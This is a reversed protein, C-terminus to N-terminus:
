HWSEIKLSSVRSKYQRGGVRGYDALCARVMMYIARSVREQVSLVSSSLCHKM